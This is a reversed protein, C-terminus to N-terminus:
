VRARADRLPGRAGLRGAAHRKPRPRRTGRRGLARDLRTLRRQSALATCSQPYAKLLDRYAAQAAQPDHLKEELLTAALFLADDALPATPHELVLIQLLKVARAHDGSSLTETAELWQQDVGDRGATQARASAPFSLLLLLLLACGSRRARLSPM